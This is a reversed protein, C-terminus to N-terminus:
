RKIGYKKLVEEQKQFMLKKEKETQHDYGLLHYFGHVILFILENNLSDKKQCDAKEVSVYIDGLLRLEPNVLDKEDELAFALVDTTKKINRYQQNLKKMKADDILIIDFYINILDEERVIKDIIEDLPEVEINYKSKNIIEFKKM